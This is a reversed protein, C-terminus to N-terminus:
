ISSSKARIIDRIKNIHESLVRDYHDTSFSNLLLRGPFLFNEQRDYKQM